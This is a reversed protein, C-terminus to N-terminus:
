ILSWRSPRRRGDVEMGHRTRDFPLSLESRDGVAPGIRRLRLGTLIEFGCAIQRKRSLAADPM